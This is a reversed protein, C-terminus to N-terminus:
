LDYIRQDSINRVKDCFKRSLLTEMKKKTNRGTLRGSTGCHILIPILNKFSLIGTVM